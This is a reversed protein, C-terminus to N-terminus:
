AEEDVAAAEAAAAKAKNGRPKKAPPAAKKEKKSAQLASVRGLVAKHLDARYGKRAHRASIGLARRGGSTPRIHTSAKAKSVKHPNAHSAHSTIRIGSGDDHIHINKPNALGSYKYSHLNRLNGPERSFIPGEPVRKVM